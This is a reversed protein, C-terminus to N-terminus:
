LLQYTTRMGRLSVLVIERHVSEDDAGTVLGNCGDLRLVFLVAVKGGDVARGRGLIRLDRRGCRGGRRGGTFFGGLCAESRGRAGLSSCRCGLRAIAGSSGLDSGVQDKRTSGGSIHEQLLLSLNGGKQSSEFAHLQQDYCGHYIISYNPTHQGSM